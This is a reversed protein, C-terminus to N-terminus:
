PKSDGCTAALFIMTHIKLMDGIYQSSSGCVHLFMLFLWGFVWWRLVAMGGLGSDWVEVRWWSM